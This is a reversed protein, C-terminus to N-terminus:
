MLISTRNTDIKVCLNSTIAKPGLGLNSIRSPDAHFGLDSTAISPNQDPDVMNADSCYINFATLLLSSM